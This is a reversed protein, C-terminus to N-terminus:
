MWDDRTADQNIDGAIAADVAHLSALDDAHVVHAARQGLLAHAVVRSHRTVGDDEAGAPLAMPFVRGGVIGAAGAGAHFHRAPNGLVNLSAHGTGIGPGAIRNRIRIRGTDEAHM